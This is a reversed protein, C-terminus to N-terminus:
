IYEDDSFFDLVDLNLNSVQDSSFIIQEKEDSKNNINIAKTSDSKNANPEDNEVSKPNQNDNKEKNTDLFDKENNNKRHIFSSWRNKISNASRNPFHNKIISWKPGKEQFLQKLLEDEEKTWEGQFVGPVLYNIYRDRCQKATRGEMFSSIELWSKAGLRGVLEQLKKDEDSSFFQRPRKKKKISPITINADICAQCNITHVNNISEFPNITIELQLPVNFTICNSTNDYDNQIGPHNLQHVAVNVRVNKLNDM